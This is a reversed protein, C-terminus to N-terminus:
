FRNRKRMILAIGFLLFSEAGIQYFFHMRNAGLVKRVGSDITKQVAHAFTLNVYNICVLILILLGIGTLLYIDRMPSNWGTESRLHIDKISQLVFKNSQESDPSIKLSYWNNIKATLAATDTGTQVLM